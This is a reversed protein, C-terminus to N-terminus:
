VVTWNRRWLPRDPADVPWLRFRVAAPEQRQDLSVGSTGTGRDPQTAARQSAEGGIGQSPPWPRPGGQALWLDHLPVHWFQQDCCKATRRGFVNFRWRAFAKLRRAASLANSCNLKPQGRLTSGASRWTTASSTLQSDGILWSRHWAECTRGFSA